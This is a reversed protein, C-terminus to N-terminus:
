DMRSEMLMWDDVASAQNGAWWESFSSVPGFEIAGEAVTAPFQGALVGSEVQFVTEITGLLGAASAPDFPWRVSATAGGLSGTIVLHEDILRAANLGAPAGDGEIRDITVDAAPAPTGLITVEVDIENTMPFLHTGAGIGNHAFSGGDANYVVTLMPAGPTAVGNGAADLATMTLEYVGDVAPGFDLAGTGAGIGGLPSWTSTGAARAFVQGSAIASGADTASFDIAMPAPGVRTPDVTSLTMTPPVSDLTRSLVNSAAVNLNTAADAFAGAPVQCSFVGQGTATLTWSYATGGGSFGSVSANTAEVDGATFTTSPESLTANVTIAGNTPDPALTTLTVTPPVSDYTRSHLGSPSNPNGAADTYVGPPVVCTVTGESSPMVTWGYSTGSGSFGTVTGNTVSM